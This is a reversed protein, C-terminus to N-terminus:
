QSACTIAVKYKNRTNCFQSSKDILCLMSRTLVSYGLIDWVGFCYKAQFPSSFILFYHFIFLRCKEFSLSQKDQGQGELDSLFLSM